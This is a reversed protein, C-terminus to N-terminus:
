LICKYTFVTSDGLASVKIASPVSSDYSFSKYLFTEIFRVIIFYVSKYKM